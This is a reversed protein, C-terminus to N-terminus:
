SKQGSKSCIIEVSLNLGRRNAQVDCQNPYDHVMCPIHGDRNSSFLSLNAIYMRSIVVDRNGITLTVGNM